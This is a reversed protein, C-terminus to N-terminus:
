NQKCWKKLGSIMLFISLDLFQYSVTDLANQISDDFRKGPQIATDWWIKYGASTLYKALEQAEGSDKRSYSLFIEYMQNM